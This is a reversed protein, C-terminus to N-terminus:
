LSLFINKKYYSLEEISDKIDGLARHDGTKRQKKREIKKNWRRALENISSVDIVQDGLYAFVRPMYKQLFAQDMYMCNGAVPCTKYPVYRKFFKILEEEAMQENFISEQSAEILGTKKHQEQCWPIMNELVYDPQNVVIEFDDSIINLHDDTIISAIELIRDEDVNLGTMELDIWIIRDNHQVAPTAMEKCLSKCKHVNYKIIKRVSQQLKVFARSM